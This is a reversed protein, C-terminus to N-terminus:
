ETDQLFSKLYITGIKQDSQFPYKDALNILTTYITKLEDDTFRQNNYRTGPSQKLTPKILRLKNVPNDPIDKSFLDRTNM